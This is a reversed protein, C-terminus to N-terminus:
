RDPAGSAPTFNETPDDGAPGGFSVAYGRRVNPSFDFGGFAPIGFAGNLPDLDLLLSGEADPRGLKEALCRPMFDLRCNGPMRPYGDKDVGVDDCGCSHYFRGSRIAQQAQGDIKAAFERDGDRVEAEERWGFMYNFDLRCDLLPDGAAFCGPLNLAIWENGLHDNIEVRKGDEIRAPVALPLPRGDEPNFLAWSSIAICVTELTFGRARYHALLDDSLSIERWPEFYCKNPFGPRSADFDGPNGSEFLRVAIGRARLEDGTLLYFTGKGPTREEQARPASDGLLALLSILAVFALWRPLHFLM